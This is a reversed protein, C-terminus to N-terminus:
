NVETVRCRERLMQRQRSSFLITDLYAEVSGNRQRIWRLTDQMASAPSGRFFSWDIMGNKSNGKSPSQVAGEGLLDGSLSYAEIIDIDDAGLCSQILMALLGTRDKGKECHFIVPGRALSEVCINLATALPSSSTVLMVSYLMPLGERELHRAAARDLAGGQFSTQLTAKMRKFPDMRAIAEDWFANVNHLLPVHFKQDERLSRYLLKSGDTRRKVGKQIEDSNRLDIITVFQSSKNFVAGSLLEEADSVSLNDLTASRYILGPVVARFNKVTSVIANCVAPLCLCCLLQFRM